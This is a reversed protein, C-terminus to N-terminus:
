LNVVDLLAFLGIMQEFNELFCLTPLRVTLNLRIFLSFVPDFLLNHLFSDVSDDPIM